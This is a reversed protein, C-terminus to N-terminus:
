RGGDDFILVSSEGTLTQLYRESERKRTQKSFDLWLDTIVDHTISNDAYDGIDYPGSFEMLPQVCFPSVQQAALHGLYEMM